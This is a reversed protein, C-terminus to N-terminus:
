GDYDHCSGGSRLPTIGGALAWKASLAAGTTMGPLGAAANAHVTEGAMAANDRRGFRRGASAAPVVKEPHDRAALTVAASRFGGAPM